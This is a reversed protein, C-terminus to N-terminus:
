NEAIFQRRFFCSIQHNGFNWCKKGSFSSSNCPFNGFFFIIFLNFLFLFFHPILRGEKLQSLDLTSEGKGSVGNWRGIQLTKMMRPKKLLEIFLSSEKDWSEIKFVKIDCTDKESLSLLYEPFTILGKIPRGAWTLGYTENRLYYSPYKMAFESITQMNKIGCMKM